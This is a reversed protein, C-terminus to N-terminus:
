ECEISINKSNNNKNVFTGNSIVLFDINYIAKDINKITEDLKDDPLDSIYNNLFNFKNELEKIKEKLKLIKNKKDKKEYYFITNLRDLSKKRKETNISYDM